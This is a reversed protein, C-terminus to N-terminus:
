DEYSADNDYNIVLNIGTPAPTAEAPSPVLGTHTRTLPDLKQCELKGTLCGIRWGYAEPQGM